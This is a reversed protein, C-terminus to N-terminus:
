YWTKIPCMVKIIKCESNFRIRPVELKKDYAKKEAKTKPTAMVEVNDSAAPRSVSTAEIKRFVTSNM